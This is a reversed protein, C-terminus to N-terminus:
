VHARGIQEGQTALYHARVETGPAQAEPTAQAFASSSSLGILTLAAGLCTPRHQRTSPSKPM